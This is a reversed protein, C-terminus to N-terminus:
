GIRLRLDVTRLLFTHLNTQLIQIHIKPSLPNLRIQLHQFVPFDRSAQCLSVICHTCYLDFSSSLLSLVEFAAFGRTGRPHLGAETMKEKLIKAADFDGVKVVNDKLMINKAAFVCCVSQLPVRRIHSM